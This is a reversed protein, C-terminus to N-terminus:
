VAAISGNWFLTSSIKQRLKRVPGFMNLPALLLWIVTLGGCLLIILFFFGLNNIFYLSELGIEQFKAVQQEVEESQEEPVPLDLIEDVQDSIELIDFAAIKTLYQFFSAANAPFHVDLLPLFVVIQLANIM